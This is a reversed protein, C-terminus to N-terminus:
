GHVTPEPKAAVAEEAPKEVPQPQLWKQLKNEIQISFMREDGAQPLKRLSHLVYQVENPTLHNM